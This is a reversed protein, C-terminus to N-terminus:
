QLASGGSVNIGGFTWDSAAWIWAGTKPSSGERVLKALAVVGAFMSTARTAASTSTVSSLSPLTSRGVANTVGNLSDVTAIAPGQDFFDVLLFNPAKGYATKCQSAALGLQGAASGPSNTSAIADINPTQIGFSQATDLFHNMLSMLNLSQAASVSNLVSTPRNPACTFNANSTNDFPNEFIFAFENMLYSNTSDIQSPDMSAVFTMLRTGDNILTQLTPWTAPASSISAPTYAYKSIGSSTFQTALEAPTANDSNVLLVTVVDNTNSDMWSKIEALWSELTGADLLDCSTHCLHWAGNSNHVQATLLRM